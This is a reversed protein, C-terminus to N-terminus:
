RTENKKPTRAAAVARARQALESAGVSDAHRVIEELTADTLHAVHAGRLLTEVEALGGSALLASVLAQAGRPSPARTFAERLPRVALTALGGELLLGGVFGADPPPEPGDDPRTLARAADRQGRGTVRAGPLSGLLASLADAEPAKREPPHAPRFGARRVTPELGATPGTWAPEPMRWRQFFRALHVVAALVTLLALGNLAKVVALVCLGVAVLVGVLAVARPRPAGAHEAVFEALIDTGDLPWLPLLNIASWGFFVALVQWAVHHATGGPAPPWVRTLGWVLGGLALGMMPGALGVWAARLHTLRGTNGATTTGGLGHLAIRAAHGLRRLALAHGLEHALVGVFAIALWSALFLGSEGLAWGLGLATLAFLFHVRVPFGLVRFHPPM